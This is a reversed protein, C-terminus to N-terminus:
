ISLAATRARLSQFGRTVEGALASIIGEELGLRRRVGCPRMIGRRRRGSPFRSRSILSRPFHVTTLQAIVGQHNKGSLGSLKQEPVFHLPVNFEKAQRILDSILDNRLGRQILISEIDRGARIAEIVARTGYIM